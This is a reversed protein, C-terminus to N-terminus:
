SNYFYFCNYSNNLLLHNTLFVFFSSFVFYLSIFSVEMQVDELFNNSSLEWIRATRDGSGTMFYKSDPCWCMSTINDYHGIFVM